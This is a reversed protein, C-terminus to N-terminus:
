QSATKYESISDTQYQYFRFDPKHYPLRNVRYVPALSDSVMGKGDEIIVAKLLTQGPRIQWFVSNFSKLLLVVPKDAAPLTLNIVRDRASSEYVEASVVTYAPDELLRRVADDPSSLQKLQPHMAFGVTHWHNIYEVELQHEGKALVLDFRGGEKGNEKQQYEHVVKGDVRVRLHAWSLDYQMDMLADDPVHIKGVWLAAFQEADINHFKNYPYDIAIHPVHEFAVPKGINDHTFYYANFGQKPVEGGIQAFWGVDNKQTSSIANDFNLAKDGGCKAEAENYAAINKRYYTAMKDNPVWGEEVYESHYFFDPKRDFLQESFKQIQPYLGETASCSLQTGGICRCYRPFWDSQLPPASVRYVPANTGSVTGINDTAVVAKIDVGKEPKLVVNLPTTANLVVILDQDYASIPLTSIPKRNDFDPIGNTTMVRDARLEAFLIVDKRNARIDKALSEPTRMKESVAFFNVILDDAHGGPAYNVSVAREGKPLIIEDYQGRLKIETGDINLKINSSSTQVWVRGDEPVNIRGTWNVRLNPGRIGHYTNVFSFVIDSSTGGNQINAPQTIDYFTMRFPEVALSTAKEAAPICAALLLVCIIASVLAKM